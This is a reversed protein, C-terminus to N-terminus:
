LLRCASLFFIHKGTLERNIRCTLIQQRIYTSSEEAIDADLRRHTEKSDLIFRSNSETVENQRELADTMDQWAKILKAILGPASKLVMIILAVWVFSLVASIGQDITMQKIIQEM